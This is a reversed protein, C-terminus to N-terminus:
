VRDCRKISCSRNRTVHHIQTKLSLTRRDTFGIWFPLDIL